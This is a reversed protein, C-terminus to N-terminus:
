AELSMLCSLLALKEKVSEYDNKKVKSEKQRMLEVAKETKVWSVKEGKVLSEIDLNHKYKNKNQERM